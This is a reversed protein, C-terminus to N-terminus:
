WHCKSIEVHLTSGAINQIGEGKRCDKALEKAVKEYAENM